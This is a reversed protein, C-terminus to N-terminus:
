YCIKRFTSGLCSRRNKKGFPTDVYGILGVVVMPPAEIFTVAEVIDKKHMRSGPKDLERVVHTMGAKFGM